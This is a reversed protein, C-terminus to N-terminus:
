WWKFRADVPPMNGDPPPLAWQKMQAAEPFVYFEVHNDGFLMVHGRKGSRAHWTVNNRAANSSKKTKVGGIDFSDDFPWNWDGQMIKNASSMSIEATTLSTGWYNAAGNPSVETVEGLIHKVRFMDDAVQPQYSTGLAEFCNRVNYAGGGLDSPCKFIEPNKLYQNLPRQNEPTNSGYLAAVRPPTRFTGLKGGVGAVGRVTPLYDENEQAYMEYATGIQKQNSECKRQRAQAKGRTLAPLLISMLIGIIAIVVLLEILTFGHHRRQQKM